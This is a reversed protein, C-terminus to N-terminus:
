RKTILVSSVASGRSFIANTATPVSSLARPVAGSLDEFLALQGVGHLLVPRTHMTRHVTRAANRPWWPPLLAIGGGNGCSPLTTRTPVGRWLANGNCRDSELKGYIRLMAIAHFVSRVEYRRGYLGSNALRLVEAAQIPDYRSSGHSKRSLRASTRLRPFCSSRSPLFVRASRGLLRREVSKSAALPM